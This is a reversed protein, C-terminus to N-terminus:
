DDTQQLKRQLKAELSELEKRQVELREKRDQVERALRIEPPDQHLHSYPIKYDAPLLEFGPAPPNRRIESLSACALVFLLIFVLGLMLAGAAIWGLSLKIFLTGHTLWFIVGAGALIAALLPARRNQAQLGLGLGALAMGFFVSLLLSITVAQQASYRTTASFNWGITTLDTQTATDRSLLSSGCCVSFSALFLAIGVAQYV